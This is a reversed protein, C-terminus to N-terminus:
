NTKRWEGMYGSCIGKFEELMQILSDVERLDEFVIAVKIEPELNVTHPKAVQRSTICQFKLNQGEHSLRITNADQGSGTIRM